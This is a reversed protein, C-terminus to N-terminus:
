SAVEAGLAAEFHPHWGIVMQDALEHRKGRAFFAEDYRERVRISTSALLGRLLAVGAAKLADDSADEPLDRRMFEFESKWEDVLEIGFNLLEHLGILDDDVWRTQHVFARHYDILARQLNHEPWDILQLQSVFTRDGLLREVEAKDIDALHLLTPLRDSTFQDRIDTVQEHVEGVGVPGRNGRLMALAETNWWGWVMEMFLDERGRPMGWTLLKRVEADIDTVQPSGDLLRVRSLLGIRDANPMGLFRKRTQATGVADSEKAATVLLREAESSDLTEPRLRFVGSDSPALATTVLVLAAGDPDTPSGDDLWVRITRWLDAGKDTIAAAANLHHKLQIRETATGDVDWAVDDFMEISVSADPMDPGRLLLDWLAWATQYQYGLASAAAGHEVTM